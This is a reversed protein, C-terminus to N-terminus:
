HLFYYTIAFYTWLTRPGLGLGKCGLRHGLGIGLFIYEIFMVKVFRKPRCGTEVYTKIMNLAM